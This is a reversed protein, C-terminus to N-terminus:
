VGVVRLTCCPSEPETNMVTVDIISKLSATEKDNETGGPIGIDTLKLLLGTVGGGLPASELVARNLTSGLTGTPEYGIVSIPDLPEFM